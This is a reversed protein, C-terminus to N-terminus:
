AEAAVAPAPHIRVARVRRASADVVELVVGGPVSLREGRGPIRRALSLCLGALSTWEGVPLALALERNVDRVAVSGLVTVSGDPERHFLEPVQRVHESFIEGVLEELLDELTVIGAMGGREDAVVAFPARRTRMDTLLEMAGKGAPVFFAPRVLDGLVFLSEEWAMALVDKVTVYGVVHDLDGEVVPFRSHTYELMLRRLEERTADRRLAVVRPRPIMVDSATLSPLRLARAAIDGAHPHVTGARAAEDVLELLEDPSLRAEIFSTRDRFPRLLANSSATLFWV